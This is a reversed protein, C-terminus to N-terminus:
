STLFKSLYLKNSLYEPLNPEWHGDRMITVANCIIKDTKNFKEWIMDVMKKLTYDLCFKKLEIFTNCSYCIFGHLSSMNSNVFKEKLDSMDYVCTPKLCEINRCPIIHKKASLKSFIPVNIYQRSPDDKFFKLHMDKQQRRTVEKKFLEEPDM